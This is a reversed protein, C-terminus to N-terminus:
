LSEMDNPKNSGAYEACIWATILHPIGFWCLHKYDPYLVCKLLLGGVILNWYCLVIGVLRQIKRSRKPATEYSKRLEEINISDNM